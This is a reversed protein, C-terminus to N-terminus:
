FPSKFQSLRDGGNKDVKFIIGKETVLLADDAFMPTRGVAVSTPSFFIDRASEQVPYGERWYLLSGHMYDSILIGDKYRTIDDLLTYPREYLIEPESASGDANKHIRGFVSALSKDKMGTFYLDDGVWELGNVFNIKRTSWKEVNALTQPASLRIRMIDGTGSYSVYLEGESGEELGNPVANKQLSGIIHLSMYPHDPSAAAVSEDPIQPTIEGAVLYSDGYTSKENTISCVAYLYNDVHTIGEITCAEHFTNLKTYSGDQRQIIEFVNTGGSVFLRGNETFFLNEAEPIDRVVLPM